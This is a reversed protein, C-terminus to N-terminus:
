CLSTNRLVSLIITVFIVVSGIFYLVAITRILDVKNSDSIVLYCLVYFAFVTSLRDFILTIFINSQEVM